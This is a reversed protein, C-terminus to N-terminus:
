VHSNAQSTLRFPEPSARKGTALDAAVARHAARIERRSGFVAFAPHHRGVPRHHLGRQPHQHVSLHDRRLARSGPRASLADRLRCDKGQQGSRDSRGARRGLAPHTRRQIGGTETWPLRRGPRRAPQLDPDAPEQPHIDALGGGVTEIGARYPFHYAQEQRVQLQPVRRRFGDPLPLADLLRPLWGGVSVVVNRTSIQEGTASVVLYGTAAPEIRSVPWDTKLQAGHQVALSVMTRVATEADIVGAGPHWLVDTDFTIQPWRDAAAQRGLLEHEVGATDLVAALAAPNRTAGFDLAGTTTILEWGSLNELEDWVAKADVVLGTYFDSPYAYRFIRASGHSSGDHAAPQSREVLTVENGARALQWATAAGALGAGIVVYASTTM